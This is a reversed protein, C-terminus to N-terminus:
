ERRGALLAVAEDVLVQGAERGLPFMEVEYGGLDWSEADTIYGVQGYDNALATVLLPGPTSRERVARGIATFPEGPLGLVTGSGVRLMQVETRHFGEPAQRQWDALWIGDPTAFGQKFPLLIEKRRHVVEPRSDWAQADAIVQGVGAALLGGLRDLETDFGRKRRAFGQEPTEDPRLSWLEETDINWILTADGQPGPTFLVVPRDQGAAWHASVKRCVAGALEASFGDGSFIWPHSGYNVVAALPEGTTQRLLMVRVTPDVSTRSVVEADDPAGARPDAWTGKSLLVRRSSAVGEVTAEGFTVEAPRLSEYASVCAAIAKEIFSARWAVDTEGQRVASPRTAMNRGFNKPIAGDRQVSRASFEEPACALALPCVVPGSHTHTGCVLIAEPALATQAAIGERIQAVTVPDVGGVDASVLGWADGGRRVVLCKVYLDDHVYTARNHGAARQAWGSLIVGLPPTIVEPSAGAELVSSM